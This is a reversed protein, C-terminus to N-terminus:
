LDWPSATVWVGDFSWWSVNVHFVRLSYSLSLTSKATGASWLVFIFSISLYKSRALSCFFSDFMLTVVIVITTLVSPVRPFVSVRWFVANNLDVLISLLTRSALPSEIDGLSWHIVVLLHQHTFSALLKNYYTRQKLIPFSNNYCKLKRSVIIISNVFLYQFGRFENHIHKRWVFLVLLIWLSCDTQQSSYWCNTERENLCLFKCSILFIPNWM